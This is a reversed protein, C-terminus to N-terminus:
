PLTYSPFLVPDKRREPCHMRLSLEVVVLPWGGWLRLKSACFLSIFYVCWHDGFLWFLHQSPWASADCVQGVTHNGKEGGWGAGWLSAHGLQTKQHEFWNVGSSVTLPSSVCWPFHLFCACYPSHRQPLCVPPCFLALKKGPLLPSPLLFSRM